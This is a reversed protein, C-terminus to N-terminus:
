KQDLPFVRLTEECKIRSCVFSHAKHRADENWKGTVLRNHAMAVCREKCLRCSCTLTAGGHGTCMESCLLLMRVTGGANNPQKDNWNTYLVPSVGDSWTSQNEALLGSLGIWTPLVLVRLYSSVFDTFSLGPTYFGTGRVVQYDCSCSETRMVTMSLLWAEERSEAGVGQGTPRSRM